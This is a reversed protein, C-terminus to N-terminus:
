GACRHDRRFRRVGRYPEGEDRLADLAARLLVRQDDPIVTARHPVLIPGAAEDALRNSGVVALATPAIPAAAEALSYEAARSSRFGVNSAAPYRPDFRVLTLVLETFRGKETTDCRIGLPM